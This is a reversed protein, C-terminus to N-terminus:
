QAERREQSATHCLPSIMVETKNSGDFCAKQILEIHKPSDDELIYKTLCNLLSRTETNDFDLYKQYADDYHYIISVRAKKIHAHEPFYPRLAINLSDIFYSDKGKKPIIAPISLKISGDDKKDVKVDFYKLINENKIPNDPTYWYCSQYINRMLKTLFEADNNMQVAEEPTPDRNDTNLRDITTNIRKLRKQASTLITQLRTNTM